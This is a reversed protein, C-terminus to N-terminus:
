EEWLPVFSINLDVDGGIGNVKGKESYQWVKYDYPYYFNSNYYAFWKDYDELEELHIKLVGMEMNHYIMPKYGANEITQCFLATFKTREEASLANMRGDAGAVLEVDYVVPCEIRYPAIKDLVFNAEELVEEETIAQSYVYVGVKVGAALAGKINEEFREDEALKGTGYGRLAVRIFAFDVGDEAVKKWDIKGQHKSVDIGKYSVVQGDQMYQIEGNELINLKSEEYSNKKLAENIPVFHYSGGSALVIYEPYLGRLVEVTSVGSELSLKINELLEKQRADAALLTEAAVAEQVRKDLEQQTYLPEEIPALVMEQEAVGNQQWMRVGLYVMLLLLVALGLLGLAMFVNSRRRRKRRKIRNVDTYQVEPELYEMDTYQENRM